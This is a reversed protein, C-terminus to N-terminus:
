EGEELIRALDDAIGDCHRAHGADGALRHQKASERLMSVAAQSGERLRLAALLAPGHTRLL